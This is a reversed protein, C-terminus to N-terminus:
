VIAETVSLILSTTSECRVGRPQNMPSAIENASVMTRSTTSRRGAPSLRRADPSDVDRDRPGEGDDVEDPPDADAVGARQDRRDQQQQALFPAGRDVTEGLRHRQERDRTGAEVREQVHATRPEEVPQKRVGVRHRHPRVEAARQHPVHERYRGVQQDRQHEPEDSEDGVEGGQAVARGAADPPDDVPQEGHAPAARGSVPVAVLHGVQQEGTERRRQHHRHVGDDAEVERHRLQGAPVRGDKRGVEYGAGDVGAERHHQNERNRQATEVPQLVEDGHAMEIVHRADHERGSEEDGVAVHHLREHGPVAARDVFVGQHLIAEGAGVRHNVPREQEEVDEDRLRQPERPHPAVGGREEHDRDRDADAHPQLAEDDDDDAQM